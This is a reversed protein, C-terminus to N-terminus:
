QLQLRYFMTPGTLPMTYPSTAGPVATYPGAVSTASELTGLTWNIQYASGVQTMTMPFYGLNVNGFGSGANWGANGEMNGSSPYEPFAFPNDWSWTLYTSAANTGVYVTNWSPRFANPWSDLGNTDGFISYTTNPLLTVPHALPVWRWGYAFSPASGSPVYVSAVLNNGQFVGVDHGVATGSGSDDWYGLHTVQRPKNGTTFFMGIYDQLGPNNPDNNIGVVLTVTAGNTSYLMQDSQTPNQVTLTVSPSNTSGYSNSAQLVYATTAEPDNINLTANTQGTLPVNNALWQYNLPFSGNAAGSLTTPVGAWVTAGQPL